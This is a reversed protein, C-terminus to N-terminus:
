VTLNDDAHHEDKVAHHEDKVAHHEDKVAHHEDKVAHHEDQHLPTGTTWRALQRCELLHLCM